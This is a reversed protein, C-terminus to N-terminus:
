CTAPVAEYTPVQALRLLKIRGHSQGEAESVVIYAQEPSLLPKCTPRGLEARKAAKEASRTAVSVLADEHSSAENRGSLWTGYTDYISYTM